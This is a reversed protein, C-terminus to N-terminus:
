KLAERYQRIAMDTRYNFSETALPLFSGFWETHDKFAELPRHSLYADIDAMVLAKTFVQMPAEPRYPVLATTTTM